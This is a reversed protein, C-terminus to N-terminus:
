FSDPGTTHKCLIPPHTPLHKTMLPLSCSCHISTFETTLLGPKFWPEAVKILKCLKLLSWNGRTYFPFLRALKRLTLTMSSLTCAQAAWGTGLSRMIAIFILLYILLFLLCLCYINLTPWKLSTCRRAAERGLMAGLAMAGVSTVLTSRCLRKLVISHRGRCTTIAKRAGPDLDTSQDSGWAM